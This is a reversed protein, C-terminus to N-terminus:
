VYTPRTSFQRPLFHQLLIQVVSTDDSPKVNLVTFLINRRFVFIVFVYFGQCMNIIDTLYWVSEHFSDGALGSIIEFSWMFGMGLFLKLYIFFREQKEQNNEGSKLKCFTLITIAFMVSNIILFLGIPLYYWLAKSYAFYEFLEISTM